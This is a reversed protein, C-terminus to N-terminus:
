IRRLEKTFIQCNSIVLYNQANTVSVFICVIGLYVICISYSSYYDREKQLLHKSNRLLLHNDSM